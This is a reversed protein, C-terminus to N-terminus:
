SKEFNARAERFENVSKAIWFWLPTVQVLLGRGLATLEYEVRPPVEPYVSRSILGDRELERLCKTLMKQSIGNIHKQLNSFRMRGDIGLAHIIFLSWKNGVHNLIDTKLDDNDKNLVKCIDDWANVIEDDTMLREM